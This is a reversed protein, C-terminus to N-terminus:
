VHITRQAVPDIKRASYKPAAHHRVLPVRKTWLRAAEFHIGGLVKLTMMPYGLLLRLLTANDIAQRTGRFHTKLVPGTADRFNVSVLLEEGPPRLRFSYTGEAATFPSVYMAKACSQAITEQMGEPVGIVYSTREGFTNTVEYIIAGLSGDARACYTVSLPNFVFGLVRPYCLLRIRHTAAGLGSDRLLDRVHSAVPTGDGRGHDRDYFSLLNPRNRSFVPLAAALRDIEDVDLLLAFVRYAFAHRAPTLRKHVVSGTYICSTFATM